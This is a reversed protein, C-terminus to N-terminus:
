MRVEAQAAIDWLALQHNDQALQVAEARSAVHVSTDVYLRGDDTWLGVFQRPQFDHREVYQTTADTILRFDTAEDGSLQYVAERGALSVMYGDTMDAPRYSYPVLTAGGNDLVAYAFTASHNHVTM